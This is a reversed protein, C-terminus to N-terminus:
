ARAVLRRRIFSISLLALGLLGVTLGGDAIRILRGNPVAIHRGDNVDADLFGLNYAYVDSGEYKGDKAYFDGWVPSRWTEFSFGFIPTDDELDLKFGYVSGPIGPNSPGQGFWGIEPSDEIGSYQFQWNWFDNAGAGESVQLIIHSLDRGDTHWLYEYRWVDNVQTINWSLWTGSNDQGPIVNWNPTAHIGTDFAITDNLLNLPLASISQVVFLGMVIAATLYIKKM